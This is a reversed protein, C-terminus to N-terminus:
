QICNESEFPDPDLKGVTHVAATFFQNINLESMTNFVRGESLGEYAAKDNRYCMGWCCPTYIWFIKIKKEKSTPLHDHWKFPNHTGSDGLVLIMGNEPTVEM